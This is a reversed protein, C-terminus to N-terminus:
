MENKHGITQMISIHIDDDAASNDAIFKNNDYKTRRIFSKNNRACANLASWERACIRYNTQKMKNSNKPNTKAHNRCQLDHNTKSISNFHKCKSRKSILITENFM